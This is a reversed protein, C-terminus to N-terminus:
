PWLRFAQLDVVGYYNVGPKIEIERDELFEKVPTLADKGAKEQFWSFIRVGFKFRMIPDTHTDESAPLWNALEETDSIPRTGVWRRRTRNNRIGCDGSLMVMVDRGPDNGYIAWTRRGNTGTI